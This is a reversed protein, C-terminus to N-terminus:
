PAKWLTEGPPTSFDYNVWFGFSIPIRGDADARLGLDQVVQHSERPEVSLKYEGDLLGGGYWKDLRFSSRTLAQYCARDSQTVDRFQKLNITPISIGVALEELDHIVSEGAVRMGGVKQAVAKILDDFVNWASGTEGLERRDTRDVTILTDFHGLTDLSLTKFTLTQGIFQATAQPGSPLTTKGYTKNFGWVERGTVMGISSDILLYPIWLYLKPILSNQLVPIWVMTESDPVWGAIESTSTAHACHMFVLLVHSGLFRFRHESAQANLIGDIFTQVAASESELAFAYMTAGKIVVPLESSIEGHRLFSVYPPLSSM